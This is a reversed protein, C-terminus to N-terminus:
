VLACVCRPEQLLRIDIKRVVFTKKNPRMLHKREIWVCRDTGFAEFTDRHRMSKGHTNTDTHTRTYPAARPTDGFLENVNETAGHTACKVNELGKATTPWDMDNLNKNALAFETMEDNLRKELEYRIGNKMKRKNNSTRMLLGNIKRLLSFSSFPFNITHIKHLM